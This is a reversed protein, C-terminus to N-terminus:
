LTPNTIKARIKKYILSVHLFLADGEERKGAIEPPGVIKESSAGIDLKEEDLCGSEYSTRRRKEETEFGRM